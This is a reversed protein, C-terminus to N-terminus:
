FNGYLSHVETNCFLSSYFFFNIRNTEIKRQLHLVPKGKKVKLHKSIFNNAPIASFLQQGGTVEINYHKRLTEFLSRDEFKRSCFRPLNINPLYTVDYFVPKENMLRIREMLICGSEIESQSLEFFFPEEWTTVYPQSIIKTKLNEKGVASTTGHISLIGIEKSGSMVISGKGQHKKIYGNKVLEDLAHRVTPRTVNHVACLENESPLLDGEKYVGKEIHGRLIEYLKRYQPIDAM